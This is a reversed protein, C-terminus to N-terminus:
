QQQLDDKTIDKIGEKSEGNENRLSFKRNIKELFDYSGRSIRRPNNVINKPDIFQIIRKAIDKNATSRLAKSNM